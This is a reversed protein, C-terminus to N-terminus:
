IEQELLKSLEEVTIYQHCESENVYRVFREFDSINQDFLYNYKDDVLPSSNKEKEIEENSM